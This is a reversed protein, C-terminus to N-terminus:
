DNIRKDIMFNRKLDKVKEFTISIYDTIPSKLNDVNLSTNLIDIIKDSEYIWDDDINLCPVQYKGGLRELIKFNENTPQDECDLINIKDYQGIESMYSLVKLSFPCTRKIYLNYNSDMRSLKVEEPLALPEIVATVKLM